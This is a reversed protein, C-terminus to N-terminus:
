LMTIIYLMLEEEQLTTKTISAPTTVRGVTKEYIEDAEDICAFKTKCKAPYSRTEAHQNKNVQCSVAAEM